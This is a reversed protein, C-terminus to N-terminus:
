GDEIAGNLGAGVRVDFDGREENYWLEMSAPDNDGVEEFLTIVSDVPISYLYDRRTRDSNFLIDLGGEPNLGAMFAFSHIFQNAIWMVSKSVWVPKDLDYKQDIKDWNMFTVRSGTWPYAQLRLPRDRLEDSIAHAEILKRIAYFGIMVEKELGATSREVWSKQNQRRRLKRGHRFLEEKWYVSHWIM